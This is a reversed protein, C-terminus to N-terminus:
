THLVKRMHIYYLISVKSELTALSGKLKLKGFALSISQNVNLTLILICCLRIPKDTIFSKLYSKFQNKKGSYNKNYCTKPTEEKLIHM